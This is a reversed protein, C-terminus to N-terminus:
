YRAANYMNTSTRRFIVKEQTAPHPNAADNTLLRLAWGPGPQALTVAEVRRDGLLDFAYLMSGPLQDLKRGWGDLVDIHDPQNVFVEALGDGTWDGLSLGVGAPLHAPPAAPYRWLPAGAADFAHLRGRGAEFVVGQLGPLDPRLKGVQLAHCDVWEPHSWLLRGALDFCAAAASFLLRPPGGDELPQMRVGGVGAPRMWAPADPAVWLTRGDHDLLRSGALFEDKVDGDIDWAFPTYSMTPHARGSESRLDRQWLLNLDGDLAAIGLGDWAAMIAQPYKTGTLHVAQLSVRRGLGALDALPFPISRLLRGQRADVMCLHLRGQIHRACILEPRGDRDLDLVAFSSDGRV